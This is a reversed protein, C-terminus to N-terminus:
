LAVTERLEDEIGFGVTDNASADNAGVGAVENALDAKRDLHPGVCGIDAMRDMGM